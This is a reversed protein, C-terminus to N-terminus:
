PVEYRRIIQAEGDCGVLVFLAHDAAASWMCTNWSEPLLLWRRGGDVVLAHQGWHWASFAGDGLEIDIWPKMPQKGGRYHVVHTRPADLFGDDTLLKQCFANYSLSLREYANHNYHINILRQDQCFGGKGMCTDNYTPELELLRLLAAALARFM